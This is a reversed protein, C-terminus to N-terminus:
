ILQKTRQLALQTSEIQEQPAKKNIRLDLAEQFCSLAKSFDRQEFHNKGAHQLAFDLYFQAEDRTRCLGIVEAFLQNSKEFNKQWQYVHALRIKQQVELRIGMNNNQVIQLAERLFDEARGLDGLIRLYVGMEGQIRVRQLQDSVTLLSQQLEQVYGRLGAPDVAVDRLNEDFYIELRKDM